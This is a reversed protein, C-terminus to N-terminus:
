NNISGKAKQRMEAEERLSNMRMKIRIDKEFPIMNEQEDINWGNYQKLAYETTYYNSLNNYSM